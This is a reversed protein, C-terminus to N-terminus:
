NLFRKDVPKGPKGGSRDDLGGRIARLVRDRKQKARRIRLRDLVDDIRDWYRMLVYGFAIASISAAPTQSGRALIMILELALIAVVLWKGAIPPFLLRRNPFRTGWAATLSLSTISIGFVPVTFRVPDFVGFLTAVLGTLVTTLFLFAFFRRKGLADELDPGFFYLSLAGWIIPTVEGNIVVNVVPYTVLRWLQLHWEWQGTRREGFVLNPLLVGHKVIPGGKWIWENFDLLCLLFAAGVVILLWKVAPTLKPMALQPTGDDGGRNPPM